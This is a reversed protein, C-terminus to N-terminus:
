RTNSVRARKAPDTISAFPKGLQWDATHLFTIPRAPKPKPAHPM